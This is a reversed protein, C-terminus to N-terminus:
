IAFSERLEIEKLYSENLSDLELFKLKLKWEKEAQYETQKLSEIEQYKQM